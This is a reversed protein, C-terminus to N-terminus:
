TYRESRLFGAAAIAAGAVAGVADALWDLRDASRGPIFGQHWEDLAAFLLVGLVALLQQAARPRAGADGAATARAVLFGLVAYLALHVVKDLGWSGAVPIGPLPVSTLVLIVAAWALPPVWRRGTM